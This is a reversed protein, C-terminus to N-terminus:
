GATDEAQKSQHPKEGLYEFGAALVEQTDARLKTFDMWLRDCRSEEDRWFGVYRGIHARLFADAAEDSVDRRLAREADSLLWSVAYIPNFNDSVKVRVPEFEQFWELLGYKTCNYFHRPGEHLPQLFATHILIRGGPRLIRWLEHAVTRPERYHEFANMVVAAAFSQDAFPLCHADAVLATNRFIAAEVEVVNPNYDATGGASLNLVLGDTKSILQQAVEPLPNSLHTDPFITPEDMGPFFVPIGRVVPWRTSGNQTQLFGDQAVVLPQRTLPCRLIPLLRQLNPRTQPPLTAAPKPVTERPLPRNAIRVWPHQQEFHHLLRVKNGRPDTTTALMSQTHVRYEALVESVGIGWLGREALRCWFDYDEWGTRMDAYGRAIAWAEKRVLAMADIYPEGALQKARYISLGIVDTSNGFKQIAPYAFSAASNALTRLLMACCNSLLRNDADLPLVYPTEAADFGVNRTPGLGANQENQLVILRNFCDSNRKAWDVALDLSGDTSGDDVVVLDLNPLTQLRVSELAETVYSAYNFLPVVVTVESQGLRDSAFIERSVPVQIAAGDTSSPTLVDLQFARAAREGETAQDLLSALARRAAAPGFKALADHHARRAVTRRLTPDDLLRSLCEGWQASGDALYGNHGHRIITKFPETPSAITCVSVLAAEFIKLESKAECFCNGVELPALNIDFRALELPLDTLRVLDRWEIQDELGRLVPFENPDILPAGSGRDRFLVLRCNPRARLTEAVANAVLLFDKQHTRSGAAYGVRVLDDTHNAARFRVAFRSMRYVSDDFTNPLVFTAKHFRRMERALTETTATCLNAAQMTDRFQQFHRRVHDEPIAQSRIGDIISTQALDPNVMLDDVDFVLPIGMQRTARVIAEVTPDWAARWVIVMDTVTLAPLNPLAEDLRFSIADLGLSRAAAVYRDVRYLAGPTNPEGAIYVIRRVANFHGTSAVESSHPTAVEPSVTVRPAHTAESAPLTARGEVRGHQIYHVLPNIEDQALSPTNALYYKTNFAPGPDRGQRAGELVYHYIPDIGRAAVDPNHSLYWHADFLGSQAITKGDEVIRRRTSLRRRLQLTVIWWALKVSGRVARRLGTPLRAGFRRIPWTAMWATSTAIADREACTRALTFQMEHLQANLQSVQIQWKRALDSDIAKANELQLRADFADKRSSAARAAARLRMRKEETLAAQLRAVQRAGAAAEATAAEAREARAAATATAAEAQEARATAEATAAEAKEARASEARIATRARDVRTRLYAALPEASREREALAEIAQNCLLAPSVGERRWRVMADYIKSVWMNQPAHLLPAALDRHTRLEPELFNAVDAKVSESFAFLDVGLADCVRSVESSWDRLLDEYLILVRPLARTSLESAVVHSLWLTSAQEPMLRNRRRLSASVEAPDRVVLVAKPSVNLERLLPIWFPLLRCLRPDKMGWLPVSAFTQCLIAKLRQRFPALRPDRDWKEPLSRPDDWAADFLSLVEDHLSVVEAHEFFGKPNDPQPPLLEHGLEVGVRQLVGAAASTGSRHMGLVLIATAPPAQETAM